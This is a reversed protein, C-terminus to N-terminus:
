KSGACLFGIGLIGLVIPTIVDGVPAAILSIILVIDLLNGSQLTIKYGAM